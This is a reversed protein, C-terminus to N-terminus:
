DAIRRESERMGGEGEGWVLNEYEGGVVADRGEGWGEGEGWGVGERRRRRRRRKEKEREREREWVAAEREGKIWKFKRTRWPDCVCVVLFTFLYRLVIEPVVVCM